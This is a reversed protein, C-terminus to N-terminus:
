RYFIQQTFNEKYTLIMTNMGAIDLRNFKDIQDVFIEDFQQNM